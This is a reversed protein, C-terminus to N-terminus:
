PGTARVSEIRAFSATTTGVNTGAGFLIQVSTVTFFNPIAAHEIFDVGDISSDFYTTDNQHRLRWLNGVTDQVPMSVGLTGSTKTILAPDTGDSVFLVEQPPAYLDLYVDGGNTPLASVDIVVCLDALPYMLSSVYFSSMNAQAPVQYTLDLYGAGEVMTIAPDANRTFLPGAIADDLEDNLVVGTGCVPGEDFVAADYLADPQPAFGIRGCGAIVVVSAWSRM